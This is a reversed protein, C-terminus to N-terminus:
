KRTQVSQEMNTEWHICPHHSHLDIKGPTVEHIPHLGFPLKKTEKEIIRKSTKIM